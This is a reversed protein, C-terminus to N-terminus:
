CAWRPCCGGPGVSRWFKWLSVQGARRVESLLLTTILYGSIVFFVDVGLFGGPMWGVGAHYLFVALVASRAFPTSGRCTPPPPQGPTPEDPRQQRNPLPGPRVGPYATGPPM